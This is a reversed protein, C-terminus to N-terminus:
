LQVIKDLIKYKDESFPVVDFYNDGSLIDRLIIM